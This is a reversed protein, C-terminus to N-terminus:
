SRYKKIIELNIKNFFIKRITLITLNFIISNLKIGLIVYMKYEFITQTKLNVFLYTSKNIQNEIINSNMSLFLLMIQNKRLIHCQGEQLYRHEFIDMEQKTARVTSRHM